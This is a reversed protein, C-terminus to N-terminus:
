ELSVAAMLPVPPTTLVMRTTFYVFHTDSIQVPKLYIQETKVVIEGYKKLIFCLFGTSKCL